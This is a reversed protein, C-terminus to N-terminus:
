KLRGKINNTYTLLLNDNNAKYFKVVVGKGFQNINNKISALHDGELDDDILTIEKVTTYYSGLKVLVDGKTRASDKTIIDDVHISNDNLIGQIIPEFIKMRNTLIVVLAEPDSIYDKMFNVVKPFLKLDFTNKDLSELKGWWGLYPWPQGTKLEYLVKGEEPLPSDCLTGDFDVALIKTIM